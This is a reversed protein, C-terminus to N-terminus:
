SHNPTHRGTRSAQKGKLPGLGQHQSPPKQSAEWWNINRPTPTRLHDLMKSKLRRGWLKLDSGKKYCWSEVLWIGCFLFLFFSISSLFSFCFFVRFDYLYFFYPCFFVGLCISAPSLLCSCGLFECVSEISILKGKQLGIIQWKKLLHETPTTGCASTNKIYKHLPPSPTSPKMENRKWRSLVGWFM